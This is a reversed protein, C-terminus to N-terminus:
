PPYGYADHGYRQFSGKLHQLRRAQKTHKTARARRQRVEGEKVEDKLKPEEIVEQLTPNARGRIKKAETGQLDFYRVYAREIAAVQMQWHATTQLAKTAEEMREKRAALEEDMYIHLKIQQEERIAEETQREDDERAENEKNLEEIRAEFTQHASTPKRYRRKLVGNKRM